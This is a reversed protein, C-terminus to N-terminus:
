EKGQQSVAHIGRALPAFASQLGPALRDRFSSRRGFELPDLAGFAM